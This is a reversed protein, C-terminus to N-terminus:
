LFQAPMYCRYQAYVLPTTVCPINLLNDRGGYIKPQRFIEKDFCKRGSICFKFCFRVVNFFYPLHILIELVWLYYTPFRCHRDSFQLKRDWSSKLPENVSGILDVRGLRGFEGVLSSLSRGVAHKIPSTCYLSYLSTESHWKIM